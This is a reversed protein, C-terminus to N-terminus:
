VKQIKPKIFRWLISHSLIFRKLIFFFWIFDLFYHGVLGITFLLATQSYFSLALMLAFFEATHFVLVEGVFYKYNAKEADITFHRYCDPLSFNGHKLIYWLYHDADILIGGILIFVVKWNFIPYLAAALLISFAAHVWIKM